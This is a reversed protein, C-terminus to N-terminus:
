NCIVDAFNYFLHSLNICYAESQYQCSYVYYESDFNSELVFGSAAVKDLFRNQLEEIKITNQPIDVTKVIYGFMINRKNQSPYQPTGVVFRAVGNIIYERNLYSEGDIRKCEITYYANSDRFWNFSVARIDTRGKYRDENPLFKEPSQLIFRINSPDKNLYNEVLRNTIKDEDNHLLNRTKICDTKMESSCKKLHEIINKFLGIEFDVNYLNDRFGQM